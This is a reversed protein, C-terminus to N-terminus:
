PKKEEVAPASPKEIEAKPNQKESLSRLLLVGQGSTLQSLATIEPYKAQIKKILEAESEKKLELQRKVAALLIDTIPGDGSSANKIDSEDCEEFTCLRIGLAERHCRGTARTEAMAALYKKFNGGINGPCADAMASWVRGGPNERNPIYKVTVTCVITDGIGQFFVEKSEIGRIESLERLGDVKLLPPKSYDGNPYVYYEPDFMKEWDILGKEDYEYKLGVILGDSGRQMPAPGVEIAPTNELSVVTTVVSDATEKSKPAM